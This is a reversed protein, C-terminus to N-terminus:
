RKLNGRAEQERSLRRILLIQQLMVICLLQNPKVLGIVVIKPRYIWRHIRFFRFCVAKIQLTLSRIYIIFHLRPECLPFLGEHNKLCSSITLIAIGTTRVYSVCELQKKAQPQVEQYKRLNRQNNIPVQPINEHSYFNHAEGLFVLCLLCGLSSGPDNSRYYEADESIM